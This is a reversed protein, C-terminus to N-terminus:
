RLHCRNCTAQCMGQPRMQHFYEYVVKPCLNPVDAVESIRGSRHIPFVVHVPVPPTDDVGSSSYSLPLGLVLAASLSAPSTSRDFSYIVPIREELLREAVPISKTFGWLRVGRRMVECLAPVHKLALEGSGSYRLNPYPMRGARVAGSVEDVVIKAFLDPYATALVDVMAVKRGHNALNQLGNFTYCYGRAGGCAETASACYHPWDLSLVTDHNDSTVPRSCVLILWEARTLESFEAAYALERKLAKRWKSSADDVNVLPIRRVRSRPRSDQIPM